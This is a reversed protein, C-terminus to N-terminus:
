SQARAKLLIRLLKPESASCDRRLCTGCCQSSLANSRRNRKSSSNNQIRKEIAYRRILSQHAIFFKIFCITTPPATTMVNAALWVKAYALSFPTEPLQVSDAYPYTNSNTRACLPM